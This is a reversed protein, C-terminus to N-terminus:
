YNFKLTFLLVPGLLDCFRDILLLLLGLVPSEQGSLAFKLVPGVARSGEVGKALLEVERCDLSDKSQELILVCLVGIDKVLILSLTLSELLM